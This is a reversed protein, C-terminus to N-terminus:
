ARDRRPRRSADRELGGSVGSPEDRGAELEALGRGITSRAVGTASSAATIGGRGATWAESAALLRRTREDLFPVMATFRARIAAIDIM